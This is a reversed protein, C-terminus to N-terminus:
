RENVAEEAGSMSISDEKFGNEKAIMYELDRKMVKEEYPTVYLCETIQPVFREFIYVALGLLFAGYIILIILSYNNEIKGLDVKKIHQYLYVAAKPALTVVVSVILKLVSFFKQEKKEAEKEEQKTRESLGRLLYRCYGLRDADFSDIAKSLLNRRTKPPNSWFGVVMVSCYFVIALALVVGATIVQCASFVMNIFLLRFTFFLIACGLVLAAVLLLTELLKEPKEKGEKKHPWRYGLFMFFYYQNLMENCEPAEKKQRGNKQSGEQKM